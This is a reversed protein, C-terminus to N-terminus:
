HRDRRIKKDGYESWVKQKRGWTASGRKKMRVSMEQYFEKFQRDLKQRRRDRLWAGIFGKVVFALGILLMIGIIELNTM